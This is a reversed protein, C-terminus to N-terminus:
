INKLRDILQFFTLTIIRMPCFREFLFRKEVNVCENGDNSCRDGNVLMTSVNLLMRKHYMNLDPYQNLGQLFM